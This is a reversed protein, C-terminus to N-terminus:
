PVMQWKWHRETGTHILTLVFRSDCKRVKCNNGANFIKDASPVYFVQLSVHCSAMDCHLCSGYKLAKKKGTQPTWDRVDGQVYRILNGGRLIHAVATLWLPGNLLVEEELCIVLISQVSLCVTPTRGCWMISGWKETETSWFLRKSIGFVYQAVM